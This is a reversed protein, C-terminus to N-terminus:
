HNTKKIEIPILYTPVYFHEHNIESKQTFKDVACRRDQMGSDISQLVDLQTYTVDSAKYIKYTIKKQPSSVQFGVYTTSDSKLPTSTLDRCGNM